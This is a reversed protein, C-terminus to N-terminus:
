FDFDTLVKKEGYGISIVKIGEGRASKWHVRHLGAPLGDQAIPAYGLDILGLRVRMWKNTRIELRASPMSVFRDTRGFPVIPFLLVVLMAMLFSIRLRFNSQHSFNLTQAVALRNARAQSVMRGLVRRRRSDSKLDMWTRQAPNLALWGAQNTAVEHTRERARSVALPEHVAGDMLDKAILGLSFLDAEISPREGKWREPAMFRATGIIEGNESPRSLGFDVLRVQGHIDILVNSPSLDGHCLGAAKLDRLGAQIQSVVEDVLGKEISSVKALTCLSLGEIWELVIAPGEPLNEWGFLSVCHPSRVRALTEMENLLGRVQNESKLVKLAVSQRSFGRSDVKTAKYVFAMSGEGLFEEIHYRASEPRVTRIM